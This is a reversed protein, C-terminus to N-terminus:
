KNEEKVSHLEQAIQDIKKLRHNIGSKGVPEELMMGLEKLSAEPNEMRLNAIELLPKPLKELLDMEKLYKISNIHRVSADVVKSLNATECNVIRNVSNRMDKLIRINELDLLAKHAGIINLFMSIQDAEKIYVIHNNKRITEKAAVKLSKLMEIISRSFEADRTIIEVHYYNNPNTISGAGLFVGRLYAKRCCLNKASGKGHKISGDRASLIYSFFKKSQLNEKVIVIFVNHEKLKRSKRIIVGPQLDFTDKILSYIRKAVNVNETALKLTRGGNDGDAVTGIVTIVASLEALRCCKRESAVRCLDSKMTNSFSM